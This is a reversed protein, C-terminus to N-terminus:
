YAEKLLQWLPLVRKIQANIGSVVGANMDALDLPVSVVLSKRRLLDSHPHDADYPKPVRKLPAGGWDSLTLDSLEDLAATIADGEEDIMARFRTLGEGKLGALGMGLQFYSPSFGM